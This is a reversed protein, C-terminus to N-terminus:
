VRRATLSRLRAPTAHLGCNRRLAETAHVGLHAQSSIPVTLYWTDVRRPQARLLRVLTTRHPQLRVFSFATAGAEAAGPLSLVPPGLLTLSPPSDSVTVQCPYRASRLYTATDRSRSFRFPGPFSRPVTLTLLPFGGGCYNCWSHGTLISGTALWRPQGGQRAHDGACRSAFSGAPQWFGVGPLPLTCVQAVGCRGPQTFFGSCGGQLPGTLTALSQDRSRYPLTSAPWFHDPRV